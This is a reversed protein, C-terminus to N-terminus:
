AAMATSSNTTVSAPTSLRGTSIAISKKAKAQRPRTMGEVMTSASSSCPGIAPMAEASPPVSCITVPATIITIELTNKSPVDSGITAVM